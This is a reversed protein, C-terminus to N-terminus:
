PDVSATDPLEREEPCVPSHHEHKTPRCWDRPLAHPAPTKSQPHNQSQADQTALLRSPAVRMRAISRCEDSTNRKQPQNPSRRRWRRSSHIRGFSPDKRKNRGDIFGLIKKGLKKVSTFVGQKIAQQNISGFWVEVFILWSGSAPTFHLCPNEDRWRRVEATKQTAYNGM